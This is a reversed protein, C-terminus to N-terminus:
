EIVRWRQLLLRNSESPVPGGGGQEWDLVRCEQTQALQSDPAAAIEQLAARECTNATFKPEDAITFILVLLAIFPLYRRRQQATFGRWLSLTSAGLYLLLVSTIPLITDYRVVAPRYARYGGLPLLLIYCVAFLGIWGLATLLKASEKSTQTRRLLLTNVLIGGLLVPFGLKDTLMRFLGGPITGYRELLPIRTTLTISNYQGLFLSYVALGSGLILCFWLFAPVERATAVANKWPKHGAEGRWGRYGLWGGFLLAIVLIVGPNLPGSLCIVVALVGALLYRLPGTKVSKEHYFHRWFPLFYWLLFALPLAYFFTYTTSPDIIGLYSRYGNAQFFPTLLAMVAVFDLRLPKFHGTVLSALLLLLGLHTALKALAGAVYVSEIPDVFTQLGLPVELLYARYGWHCFFRNPNAYTTDQLIATLGFPSTLIPKVEEAPLLNWAMDGDLLQARYQAFSYGLDLLLFSLLLWYSFRKPL